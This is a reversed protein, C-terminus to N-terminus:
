DNFEECLLSGNRNDIMCYRLRSRVVLVKKEKMRNQQRKHGNEIRRSFFGGLTTLWRQGGFFLIIIYFHTYTLANWLIDELM